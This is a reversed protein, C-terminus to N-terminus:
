RCWIYVSLGTRVKIYPCLIDVQKLFSGCIRFSCIWLVTIDMLLQQLSHTAVSIRNFLNGQLKLWFAKLHSLLIKWHLSLSGMGVKFGESVVRSWANVQFRFVHPSTKVRILEHTAHWAIPASQRLQFVSSPETHKFVFKPVSKTCCKKHLVHLWSWVNRDPQLCLKTVPLM